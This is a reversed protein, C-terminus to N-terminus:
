DLMFEKEIFDCEDEGNACFGGAYYVCTVMRCKQWRDCTEEMEKVPNRNM